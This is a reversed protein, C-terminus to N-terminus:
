IEEYVLINKQKSYENYAKVLEYAFYTLGFLLAGAIASLKRLQKAVRRQGESGLNKLMYLYKEKLKTNRVKKIFKDQAAADALFLRRQRLAEYGGGCGAGIACVGATKVITNNRNDSIKM